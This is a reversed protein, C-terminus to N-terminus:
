PRRRGPLGYRRFRDGLEDLRVSCVQGISCSSM